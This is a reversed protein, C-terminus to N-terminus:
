RDNQLIRQGCCPCYKDDVIRDNCNNEEGCSPCIYEDVHCEKIHMAIQKKIAVIAIGYAEASQRCDENMPVCEGTMPNFLCLAKDKELISIADSYTM